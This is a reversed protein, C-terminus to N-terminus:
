ISYCFSLIVFCNCCRSLLKFGRYDCCIKATVCCLVRYNRSVVCFLYWVRRNVVRLKYPFLVYKKKCVCENNAPKSEVIVFSFIFFIYSLAASDLFTYGIKAVHKDHVKCKSNRLSNKSSFPSRSYFTFLLCREREIVMLYISLYLLYRVGIICLLDIFVVRAEICGCFSCVCVIFNKRTTTIM